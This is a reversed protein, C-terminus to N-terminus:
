SPPIMDGIIYLIHSQIKSVIYILIKYEAELLKLVKVKELISIYCIYWFKDTKTNLYKGAQPWFLTQSERLKM